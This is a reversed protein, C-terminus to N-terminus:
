ETASAMTTTLSTADRTTVLRHLGECVKTDFISPPLFAVVVLVGTVIGLLSLRWVSDLVELIPHHARLVDVM